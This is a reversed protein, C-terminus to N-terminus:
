RRASKVGSGQPVVGAHRRPPVPHVVALRSRSQSRALQEIRLAPRLAWRGQTTPPTSRNAQLPRVAHTSELSRRTNQLPDTSRPCRFHEAVRDALQRGATTFLFPALWIRLVEGPSRITLVVLLATLAFRYPLSCSRREDCRRACSSRPACSWPASPTSDTARCRVGGGLVLASSTCPFRILGRLPVRRSRRDVVFQCVRPTAPPVAQDCSFNLLIPANFLIGVFRTRRRPADYSRHRPGAYHAASACGVISDVVTSAGSSCRVGAM